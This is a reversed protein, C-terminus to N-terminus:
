LLMSPSKDRALAEKGVVSVVFEFWRCREAVSRPLQVAVLNCPTIATRGGFNRNKQDTLEAGTVGPLVNPEILEPWNSHVVRLLYQQVWGLDMPKPHPRIDVFYADKQTIIAYLLYESRKVFGSEEVKKSLHFHHM